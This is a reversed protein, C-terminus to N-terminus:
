QAGVPWERAGFVSSGLRVSNSGAAIAEEMDATMGMSLELDHEDVALRAAVAQRCAQLAAFCSREDPRRFKPFCSMDSPARMTMLGLLKLGPCANTVHEALDPAADASVGSGGEYFSANASTKSTKVQIFIGLPVKRSGASETARQLGDALELTDVTEVAVLDPVGRVLTDVQHLALKGVFRWRIDEPLHPWKDVLEDVYNEGFDRVGMNYAARVAPPPKTKSVAVLRPASAGALRAADVLRQQVVILGQQMGTSVARTSQRLM